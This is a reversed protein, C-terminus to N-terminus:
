DALQFAKLLANFFVEQTTPLRLIQREEKTGGIMGRKGFHMPDIWIESGKQLSVGVHKHEREFKSQAAAPLGELESKETKKRAPYEDLSKLVMVLGSSQMESHSVRILPGYEEVCGYQQSEAQNVVVFNKGDRSMSIGLGPIM